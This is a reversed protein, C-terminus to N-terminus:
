KYKECFFFNNLIESLLIYCYIYKGENNYKNIYM